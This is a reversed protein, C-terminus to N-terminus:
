NENKVEQNNLQQNISYLAHLLVGAQKTDNSVEIAERHGMRRACNKIAALEEPEMELQLQIAM